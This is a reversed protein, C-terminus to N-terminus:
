KRNDTGSRPAAEVRQKQKAAAAVNQAAVNHPREYRM